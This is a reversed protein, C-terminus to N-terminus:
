TWCIIAGIVLVVAAMLYSCAKPDEGIANMWDGPTIFDVALMLGILAPTALCLATLRLLIYRLLGYPDGEMILPSSVSLGALAAVGLAACSVMALWKAVENKM